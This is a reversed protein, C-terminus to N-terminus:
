PASGRPSGGATSWRRTPRAAPPPPSSARGVGRRYCAALAQRKTPDTVVLGRWRQGNGFKPAQLALALCARVVEPEVPRTFDLRKRVSRTTSLLEDPTLTLLM